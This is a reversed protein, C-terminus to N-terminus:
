VRPQETAEVDGHYTRYRQYGLPEQVDHKHKYEALSQIIIPAGWRQGVSGSGGLGRENGPCRIATASHTATAFFFFLPMENFEQPHFIPLYCFSFMSDFQSSPASDLSPTLPFLGTLFPSCPYPHNTCPPKGSSFSCCHNPYSRQSWRLSCFIRTVYHKGRPKPPHRLSGPLFMWSLGPLDCIRPRLLFLTMTWIGIGFITPSPVLVPKLQGSTYAAQAHSTGLWHKRTCPNDHQM